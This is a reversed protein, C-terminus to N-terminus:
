RRGARKRVRRDSPVLGLQRAAVSIALEFARQADVVPDGLVIQIALGDLLATFGVAFDDVSVEQFEGAGMGDRVIQRITERFREDSEERVRRVEDNRLAQGWLDLWLAWPEEVSGPVAPLCTMSVVEELRGAATPIRGTQRTMEAYWGEEAQRMAEALLRDKTKFYYIVLAPSVGARESVDAIRTEPFGREMIVDIAASLIQTRRADPLAELSTESTTTM